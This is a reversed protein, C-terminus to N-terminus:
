PASGRLVPLLATWIQYAGFLFLAAASLAALAQTVRTGLQRAGAYVAVLVCLGGILSGYFGALFSVALPPASRWASVLIPGAILGWFIYPGPGLANVLAAELLSRQASQHPAELPEGAQKSANYARWALYLLFVGGVLRVGNLLWDPTQTLVLVMLIVIPGDSILPALVSPLALRWGRTITRAFLYAQFPGPSFAASLGLTLGQLLLQLM